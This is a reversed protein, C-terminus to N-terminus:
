VEETVTVQHTFVVLGKFLIVTKNSSSDVMFFDYFGKNFSLGNTVSDPVNVLVKNNGEDVTIYQTVDLLLSSDRSVEERIQMKFSKDSLFGEPFTLDWEWTSGQYMDLNVVDVM